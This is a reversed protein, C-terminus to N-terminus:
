LHAESTAYRPASARQISFRPLHTSEVGVAEAGFADLCLPLMGVVPFSGVGFHLGDPVTVM